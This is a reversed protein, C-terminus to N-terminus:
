VTLASMVSKEPIGVRDHHRREGPNLLLLGLQELSRVVRRELELGFQEVAVGVVELQRDLQGFRDEDEGRPRIPSRCRAGARASAGGINVWPVAVNRWPKPLASLSTCDGVSPASSAHGAVIQGFDLTQRAGQQAIKRRALTAFEQALHRAVKGGALALADGGLVLGVAAGERRALL